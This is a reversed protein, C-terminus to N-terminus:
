PNAAIQTDQWPGVQSAEFWTKIKHNKGASQAGPIKTIQSTKETKQAIRVDPVRQGNRLKGNETLFHWDFAFGSQSVNQCNEWIDFKGTRQASHFKEFATRLNGCDGEKVPLKDAM